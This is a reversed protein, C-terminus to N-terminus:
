LILGGGGFPFAVGDLRTDEMNLGKGSSLRDERGGYLGFQM